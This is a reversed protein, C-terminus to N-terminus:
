PGARAPHTCLFAQSPTSRNAQSQGKYDIEVGAGAAQTDDIHSTPVRFTGGEWWTVLLLVVPSIMTLPM